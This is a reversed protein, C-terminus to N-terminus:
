FEFELDADNDAEEPSTGPTEVGINYEKSTTPVSSTGPSLVTSSPTETKTNTTCSLFSCVLVIGLSGKLRKLLM